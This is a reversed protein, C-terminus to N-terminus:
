LGIGKERRKQMAKLQLTRNTWRKTWTDWKSEYPNAWDTMQLSSKELKLVKLVESGEDEDIASRNM